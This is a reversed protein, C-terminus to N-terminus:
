QNYADYAEGRKHLPVSVKVIFLSEVVDIELSTSYSGNDKDVSLRALKPLGSGGEGAVTNPDLGYNFRDRIRQIEEQSLEALRENSLPNSVLLKLTEVSPDREVCVKIRYAANGLGSHKWCNEFTIHMCEVITALGISTLPLALCDSESVEVQANFLRYTNKTAKEAIGLAEKLSFFREGAKEETFFWRAAVGCQQGTQAAVKRLADTAQRSDYVDLSIKQIAAEFYGQLKQQFDGSFYDHLSQLSPTLLEWFFGFCFSIFIQFEYESGLLSYLKGYLLDNQQIKIYGQPHLESQIRIRNKTADDVLAVMSTTLDKLAPIVISELDQESYSDFLMLLKQDVEGASVLFGSEEMPGLITGRFTGHRIRSSLYCNLGDLPDNLFRDKLREVISLLLRNHESLEASAFEMFDESDLENSIKLLQDRQQELMEIDHPAAQKKWREVDHKLEKEAWRAVSPENVFIRSEDIHSLGALVTDLLTVELIKAGYIPAHKPIVQVLLELAAIREQRVEATSKLDILGFNEETWVHELFYAFKRREIEGAAEWEKHIWDRGGLQFIARCAMACIHKINKDPLPLTSNTYHASIAVDLIKHQKFTLWKKGVMLEALPLTYARSEPLTVEDAVMELASSLNGQLCSIYVRLKKAQLNGKDGSKELAKAIELAEKHRGENALGRALWFMATNSLFDSINDQWVSDKVSALHQATSQLQTPLTSNNAISRISWWAQEDPLCFLEEIRFTICALSVWPLATKDQLDSSTVKLSFNLLAAGIPLTRLCLGLRLIQLVETQATGGRESIVNLPTAALLNSNIQVDGLLLADTLEDLSSGENSIIPDRYEGCFSIIKELRHDQIGASILDSAINSVLKSYNSNTRETVLSTMAELLTGYCDYISNSFDACLSHALGSELSDMQNTARLAVYSKLQPRSNFYRNFADNWKSLFADISYKDDVREAFIESLTTIIRQKGSSKVSAHLKNVGETGSIRETLFFSLELLTVSWGHTYVLEDVLLMARPYDQAFILSQIEQTSEVFSNINNVHHAIWASCFKLDQEIGLSSILNGRFGLEKIDKYGGWSHCNPLKSRSQFLAFTLETDFKSESLKRLTNVKRLLDTLGNQAPKSLAKSLVKLSHRSL